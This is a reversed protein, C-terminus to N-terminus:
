RFKIVDSQVTFIYKETNLPAIYMFRFMWMLIHILIECPLFLFSYVVSLSMGAPTFVVGKSRCSVNSYYVPLM